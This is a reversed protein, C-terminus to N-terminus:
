AVERATLPVTDTVTRRDRGLWLSVTLKGGEGADPVLDRRAVLDLDSAAMYSAVEEAAFGLRRHAQAVRLSEESHPAFDVVLLRGGPRLARAAERVARSPDDLYHLVQHVVVLDYFDPEVPVAYIDGQRLQVNRLGARELRVRALSLMQASQDIGVARAASPALLELMRGTGTGLDLVHRSPVQGLAELVAAEVREESVHMARLEDWTAAHTEFYRAAHDARAKRVEALRARDAVIRPDRPALRSVLDRALGAAPGTQAVFCFVWAGERHREVLGAEVLLKLHRSIRPQSQGLITVLESVTLEAEVLLALLRLRTAEGAAALASLLGEFSAPESGPALPTRSEIM